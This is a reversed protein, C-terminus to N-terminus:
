RPKTKNKPKTKPKLKTKSKPKAHAASAAALLERAIAEAEKPQFDMPIEMTDTAVFIRVMNNETPAISLEAEIDSNTNIGM